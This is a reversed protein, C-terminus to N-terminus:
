SVVPTQSSCILAKKAAAIMSPSTQCCGGIVQAGAQLWQVAQTAFSQEVDIEEGLLAYCQGAVDWVDGRNPYAILIRDRRLCDRMELLIDETFAPATCNVGVLLREINGFQSQSCDPDEISRCVSEITDGNNLSRSDRCAVSLWASIATESSDIVQLIAKVESLCPITEFALIDPHSALAGPLRDAHWTSLKKTSDSYSGSYESGNCLHAGFCGMSSAVLGATSRSNVADVAQRALSVGTAFVADTQSANFQFRKEFGEYSIQYTAATIIDAGAQLYQTHVDLVAQLSHSWGVV